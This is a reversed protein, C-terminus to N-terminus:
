GLDAYAGAAAAVLDMEELAGSRQHTIFEGEVRDHVSRLLVSADPATHGHGRLREAIRLYAERLAREPREVTILTDGYDFLVAAVPLGRLRRSVGRRSRRSRAAPTGEEARRAAARASRGGTPAAPAAATASPRGSQAA